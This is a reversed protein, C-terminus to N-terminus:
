SDIPHSSEIQVMSLSIQNCIYMGQLPTCTLTHTDLAIRSIIHHSTVLSDIYSKQLILSKRYHLM